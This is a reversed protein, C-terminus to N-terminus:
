ILERKKLIFGKKVEFSRNDHIVRMIDDFDKETFNIFTSKMTEYFSNTLCGGNRRPHHLYGLAM